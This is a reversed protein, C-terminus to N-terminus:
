KFKESACGTKMVVIVIGITHLVGLFQTKKCNTLYEAPAGVVGLAQYALLPVAVSDAADCCPQHCYVGM